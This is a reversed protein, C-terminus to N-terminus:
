DNKIDRLYVNCLAYMGEIFETLVVQSDVVSIDDTQEEDEEILDYDSVRNFVSYYDGNSTFTESSIKGEYEVDAYIIYGTSEPYECIRVNTVPYGGRTQKVRNIDIM